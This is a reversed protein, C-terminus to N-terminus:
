PSDFRRNGTRRREVLFIGRRNESGPLPEIVVFRIGFELSFRQCIGPRKPYAALQRLKKALAALRESRFSCCDYIGGTATCPFVGHKKLPNLNVLAVTRKTAVPFVIDADLSDAGFFRKLEFELESPDATLALWGRRQMDRVPAVDYLRAM